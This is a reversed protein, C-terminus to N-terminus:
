LLSSIGHPPKSSSNITARVYDLDTVRIWIPLMEYAESAGNSSLQGKYSNPDCYFLMERGVGRKEGEPPGAALTPSSTPVMDSRTSLILKVNTKAEPAFPTMGNLLKRSRSTLPLARHGAYRRRVEGHLLPYHLHPDRLFKGLLSTGQRSRIQQALKAPDEGEPRGQLRPSPSIKSQLLQIQLHAHLNQQESIHARRWAVAVPIETKSGLVSIATLAKTAAENLLRQRRRYKM